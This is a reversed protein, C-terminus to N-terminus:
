PATISDCTEVNMAPDYTYGSAVVSTVCFNFTGGNKKNPSQLIVKGDAGTAGSSPGSVAGSWQGTVTAGSVNAGSENKIWVTAKAYYNTGSKGSSMTIDYVYVKGSPTPTPTPTPTPGASLVFRVADAIVASAAPTSAQADLTISNNGSTFSFTGLMVEVLALAGNQNVYVIHDGDSAHVIFKAATVRNTSQLFMTYVDYNGSQSLAGTWTATANDGGYCFRYSGGNYGSSVSTSWTGTETYWPAGFDNDVVVDTGPTPTPTPTPTSTPIPTPTAEGPKVAKVADAIVYKTKGGEGTNASLEVRYSGAQFPYSGLPRFRGGWNTQDILQTASGGAYYITYPAKLTRTSSCTWLAFVDYTGAEPINLNFTALAGNNKPAQAYNAGYWGRTATTITWAGSLTCQADANDVIVTIPQPTPTPTPHVTWRAYIFCHVTNLNEYGYNYGPWDYYVETGNYNPYTGDNKDGYPDNFILTYQGTVYGIGTIYHGATTLSNLLVYPHVNDIETCAKAYTPSWDVMSSPGHFSIYEAMHTKTDEWNNQTIYGYGGTAYIGNPDPEAIDFTHGNYTYTDGIYNGYPSYHSTPSMCWCQWQTHFCGYYALAMSAATAGCAWNGNMWEPTDYVQHVTPVGSIIVNTAGAMPIPEGTSANGGKGPPAPVEQKWLANNKQWTGKKIKGATGFAINGQSIVAMADGDKLLESGKIEGKSSVSIIETRSVLNKCITKKVFAISDNDVWAPSEGKGLTKLSGEGLGACLIDGDVGSVLLKDGNPSFRPNWYDKKGDTVKQKTGDSLSLVVIQQTIDNYAIRSGDPSFALLNVHHGLDFTELIELQSNFLILESGITFAINGDVSVAPTGALPVWTWLIINQGKQIDYLVPAQLSGQFGKYCVFSNDPSFSAYYGANVGETIAISEGKENLLILGDYFANTLLVLSGDDSVCVPVPDALAGSVWLTLIVLLVLSKKMM